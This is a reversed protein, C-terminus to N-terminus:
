IGTSNKKFALDDGEYCSKRSRSDREREKEREREKKNDRERKGEKWRLYLSAFVIFGLVISPLRNRM